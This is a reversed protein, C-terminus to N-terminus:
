LSSLIELYMRRIELYSSIKRIYFQISKCVMVIANWEFVGVKEEGDGMVGMLNGRWNKADM